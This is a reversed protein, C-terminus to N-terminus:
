GATQFGSQTVSPNSIRGMMVCHKEHKISKMNLLMPRVGATRCGGPVLILVGLAASLLLLLLLLLRGPLLLVRSTIM